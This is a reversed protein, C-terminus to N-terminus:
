GWTIMWPPSMLAVVHCSGRGRRPHSRPVTSTSAKISVPQGALAKYFFVVEAAVIVNKGMKLWCDAMLMRGGAAGMGPCGNSRRQWTIDWGSLRDGCPLATPLEIRLGLSWCRKGVNGNATATSKAFRSGQCHVTRSSWCEKCGLLPDLRLLM